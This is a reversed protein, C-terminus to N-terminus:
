LAQAANIISLHRTDCDLSAGHDSRARLPCALQAFPGSHAILPCEFSSSCIFQVIYNAM